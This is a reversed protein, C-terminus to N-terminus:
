IGGTLLLWFEDIGRASLGRAYGLDFTGPVYYGFQMDLRLSAGVALKLDGPRFPGDFANGADFLAAAHVRRFYFPLTVLGKELNQIPVRYELNLLHYQNGYISSAPYGHLWGYGQRTSRLIAQVIDQSPVGGLFFRPGSPGEAAGVGGQLSLALAGLFPLGHFEDWRYFAEIDKSESGVAPHALRIALALGRGETPGLTYIFGRVNSSSWRLTIGAARGTHPLIPVAADPRPLPPPDVDRLWSLDWGISLDSAIEPERLVPLGVGALLSWTEAHYTTNRGDLILGGALGTSRGAALSLSPWWKFAYAAGGFSVDGHTLGYTASLSWAWLGVVDSGSTAVTVATGFSDVATSVTYSRPPLTEAARYDRPASVPSEDDPIRVADPRDDVYPEAVLVRGPDLPLEYLEFGDPRFGYYVLSRGDPAVDENFAGGLVNTVQLLPGGDLDLRYINYIGSRDSSFFIHRGDPAFRPTADIARDRTLRTVARSRLDVLYLDTYGGDTWAAFVLRQGDPSWSPDYAQDWRGGEWLITPEVSGDAPMIALRQRSRGNVTFALWRGDPSLDPSSARAGHTLRTAQGDWGVRYLDTYAYVTRYTIAREVIMGSGDPLLALKGGGDFRVRDTAAGGPALARYWGARQGDSQYWLITGDRAYRPHLNLERSATLQRGEIEGRARVAARQLAYRHRLYAMWDAYLEEYDEGTAHAIARNLGYPVPQAGYEHSVKTLTEDGFRDAIYQLFHSGYVYAANGHPWFLPGSSVADIDLARGELVAIRLYMDFITNRNRGGASRETEEEVALGEIFWRPQINNPAWTKGVIHNYLRPIFGMTDLHLIHTYEHAVLDYLWDDYTNLDSLADPATAFLGIHNYPLVTAFGNSGDTDDTIVIETKEAPEHGLVPVLVRHAREAVVAVRRAIDRNPEYYSVVFHPSEVTRWDLDGDGARAPAGLLLLATVALRNV